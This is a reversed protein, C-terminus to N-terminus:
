NTNNGDDVLLYSMNRFNSSLFQMIERLILPKTNEVGKNQIKAGKEGNWPKKKAFYDNPFPTIQIIAMIQWRIGCIQSTQPFFQMLEGLILSKINKVGKINFKPM